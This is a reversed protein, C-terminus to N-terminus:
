RIPRGEAIGLDNRFKKVQENARHLISMTRGDELLDVSEPASPDDMRFGIRDLILYSLLMQLQSMDFAMDRLRQDISVVKHATESAGGRESWDHLLDKQADSLYKMMADYDGVPFTTMLYAVLLDKQNPREEDSVCLGRRMVDLFPRPIGKFEVTASAKPKRGRKASVVTKVSKTEYVPPVAIREPGAAQAASKSANKLESRAPESAVVSQVAEVASTDNADKKKVSIGSQNKFAQRASLGEMPNGM